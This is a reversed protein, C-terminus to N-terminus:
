CQKSAPAKPTDLIVLAQGMGGAWLSAFARRSFPRAFGRMNETSLPDRLIATGRQGVGLLMFYQTLDTGIHGEIGTSLMCYANGGLRRAISALHGISAPAGSIDAGRLLVSRINRTQAVDPFTRRFARTAFLNGLYHTQPGGAEQYVKGRLAKFVAAQSPVWPHASRRTIAGFVMRLCANFTSDSQVRGTDSDFATYYPLDGLLNAPLTQGQLANALVTRGFHRMGPQAPAYPDEALLNERCEVLGSLNEGAFNYGVHEGMAQALARTFFRTQTRLAPAILEERGESFLM